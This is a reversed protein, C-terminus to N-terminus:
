IYDQGILRIKEEDAHIDQEEQVLMIQQRFVEYNIPTENNYNIRKRRREDLLHYRIEAEVKVAVSDVPVEIEYQRPKYRPLRTDWLDVIFPRWMVTRKLTHKKESILKNNKDFLRLHVTLHRDPTGTPLYHAAGTNALSLEFRRNKNKPQTIETFAVSLAKKVMEPDHGGRWLHRRVTRVKGGEVLSREVAPMHCEVCNLSAVDTVVREGSFGKMVVLPESSKGPTKEDVSLSSLKALMKLEDATPPNQRAIDIEAVTGCPPFRFFTDWRDGGVVHCRVCVENANKLVTVPHPANTNGLVGVIKGDRYHCASCTVGEHQLAVNFQPNKEIIPDWKEKDRYGLIKDPLQTDLPTHCLRCSQPSGDFKWDTQFYPETWAQSHISTKWEQYLSQHCTGCEKASLTKFMLPKQSTDIPQSFNDEVLFINMPRMFRWAFFIILVIIVLSIYLTRKKM